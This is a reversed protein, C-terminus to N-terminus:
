FMVLLKKWRTVDHHDPKSTVYACNNGVTSYWMIPQLCPECCIGSARRSSQCAVHVSIPWLHPVNCILVSPSGM